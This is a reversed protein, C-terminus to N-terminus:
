PLLGGAAARAIELLGGPWLGLVAIGLATIGLAARNPLAVAIRSPDSPERLYMTRILAVYYYASVVSNLVAVVALWVLGANIAANFLFLKGWSASPRPSASSASCRWPM